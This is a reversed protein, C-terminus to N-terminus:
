AEQKVLRSLGARELHSELMFRDTVIVGFEHESVPVGAMNHALCRPAEIYKFKYDGMDSYRVLRSPIYRHKMTREEM